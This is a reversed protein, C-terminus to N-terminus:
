FPKDMMFKEYEDKSLSNMIDKPNISGNDVYLLVYLDGKDLDRILLYNYASLDFLNIDYWYKLIMYDKIKKDVLIDKCIYDMDKDSFSYLSNIKNKTYNKISLGSVQEIGQSHDIVSQVDLISFLEKIEKIKIDVNIISKIKNTTEKLIRNFEELFKKPIFDNVIDNLVDDIYMAICIKNKSMTISCSEQEKEYFYYADDDTFVVYSLIDRIGKMNNKHHYFDDNMVFNYFLGYYSDIVFPSLGLTLYSETNNKYAITLAEKYKASERINIEFSIYSNPILRIYEKEIDSRNMIIKEKTIEDRVLIKDKNIQPGTTNTLIRIMRGKKYYKEGTLLM